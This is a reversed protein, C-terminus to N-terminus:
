LEDVSIFCLIVYFLGVVFHLFNLFFFFFLLFLISCYDYM